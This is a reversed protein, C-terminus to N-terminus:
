ANYNSRIYQFVSPTYIFIINVSHNINLGLNELAVNTIDLINLDVSLRVTGIDPIIMLEMMDRFNENGEL